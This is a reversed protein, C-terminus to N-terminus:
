LIILCYKLKTLCFLREDIVEVNLGMKYTNEHRIATSSLVKIGSLHVRLQPLIALNNLVITTTNNSSM